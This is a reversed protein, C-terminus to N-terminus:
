KLLSLVAYIVGLLFNHPVIGEIIGDIVQSVKKKKRYTRRKPFVHNTLHSQIASVLGPYIEQVDAPRITMTNLQLEIKM